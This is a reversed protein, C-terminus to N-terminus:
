TSMLPIALNKEKNFQYVSNRIELATNIAKQPAKELTDPVGFVVMVCDGIFKDIRGGNCDICEGMMRFCQNMIATVEEPHMKESMATFGSIDAFLVTAQRLESEIPSDNKKM